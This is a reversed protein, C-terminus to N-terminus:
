TMMSFIIVMFMAIYTPELIYIMDAIQQVNHQISGDPNVATVSIEYYANGNYIEDYM